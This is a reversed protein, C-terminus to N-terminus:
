LPMEQSRAMKCNSINIKNFTAKLNEELKVIIMQYIGQAHIPFMLFLLKHGSISSFDPIIGKLWRCRLVSIFALTTELKSILLCLLRFFPQKSCNEAHLQRVYHIFHPLYTHAQKVKWATAILGSKLVPFHEPQAGFWLYASM